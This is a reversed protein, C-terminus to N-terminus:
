IQRLPIEISEEGSKEATEGGAKLRRWERRLIPASVALGVLSVVGALSIVYGSMYGYLVPALLTGILAAVQLVSQEMGQISGLWRAPAVQVLFGQKAPYSWAFALGEIISVGLFVTLNDTSGYIIWAFAAVTFGSFMLAWRSYRDALYGGLFALLMPASFAIWTFGIFRVSAGLHRLWLSWLVEFVGM